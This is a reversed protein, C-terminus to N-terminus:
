ECSVSRNMESKVMLKAEVVLNQGKTTEGIEVREFSTISGETRVPKVDGVWDPAQIRARVVDAMCAPLTAEVELPRGLPIWLDCTMQWLARGDGHVLATPKDCQTAAVAELAGLQPLLHRHTTLLPDASDDDSSVIFGEIEVGMLDRLLELGVPNQSTIAKIEEEWDSQYSEGAFREWRALIKAGSPGRLALRLDTLDNLQVRVVSIVAGADRLQAAAIRPPVIAAPSQHFGDTILLVLDDKTSSKRTRGLLKSAARMADTLDTGGSCHSIELQDEMWELARARSQPTLAWTEVGDLQMPTACGTGSFVVLGVEPTIAKTLLGDLLAEVTQLRSSRRVDNSLFTSADNVVMSTSVDVLLVLRGTVRAGDAGDILQRAVKPVLGDLAEREGREQLIVLEEKACQLNYHRPRTDARVNCLIEAEDPAPLLEIDVGKSKGREMLAAQLERGLAALDHTTLVTDESRAGVVVRDDFHYALRTAAELPAIEVSIPADCLHLPQMSPRADAGVVCNTPDGIRLFVSSRGHQGHEHVKLAGTTIVKAVHTAGPCDLLNAQSPQQVSSIWQGSEGITLSYRSPDDFPQLKSGYSSAIFRTAPNLRFSGRSPPHRPWFEMTGPYACGDLLELEGDVQRFVPIGESIAKQIADATGETSLPLPHIMPLESAPSAIDGYRDCSALLLQIALAARKMEM